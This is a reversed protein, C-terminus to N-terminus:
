GKCRYHTRLQPGYVPVSFDVDLLISAKSLIINMYVLEIRPTLNVLINRSIAEKRCLPIQCLRCGFHTKLVQKRRRRNNSNSTRRITNNLLDALPKRRGIREILTTWKAQLCALYTFLKDSIRKLKYGHEM